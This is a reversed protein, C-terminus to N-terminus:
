MPSPAFEDEALKVGLSAGHIVIKKKQWVM